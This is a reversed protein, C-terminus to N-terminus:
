VELLGEEVVEARKLLDTIEGNIDFLKVGEIDVEKIINYWNEGTYFETLYQDRIGDKLKNIGQDKWPYTIFISKFFNKTNKEATEKCLNILFKCHDNPTKKLEAQLYKMGCVTIAYFDIPSRDTLLVTPNSHDEQTSLFVETSFDNLLQMQSKIYKEYIEDIKANREKVKLTDLDNKYKELIEDPNIYTKKGGSNNKSFLYRIIGTCPAIRQGKIPGRVNRIITTKGAGSQGFFGVIKLNENRNM